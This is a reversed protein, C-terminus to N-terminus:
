FSTLFFRKARDSRIRGEVEGQTMYQPHPDAAQVHASLRAADQQIADAALGITDYFADAESKTLYQPHPDAELRHAALRDLVAQLTVYAQPDIALSIAANGQEFAVVMRLIMGTAAGSDPAPKETAPYNGIALVKGPVRGGIVALERIVYGGKEEPIAAELLIWNAHDPHQKISSIPVIDVQHVLQTRGDPVVQAGNGDGIAIHTFPVTQQAALAGALEAKGAATPLSYYTSM